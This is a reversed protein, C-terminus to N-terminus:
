LSKSLASLFGEPDKVFRYAPSQRIENIVANSTPEIIKNEDTILLAAALRCFEIVVLLEERTLTRLDFRLQMESLVGEDSLISLCSKELDGYVALDKTWTKGPPFVEALCQLAPMPLAQRRWWDGALRRESSLVMGPVLGQSKALALPLLEFQVQWVAM